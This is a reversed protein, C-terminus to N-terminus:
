GKNHKYPCYLLTSGKIAKVGEGRKCTRTGYYKCDICQKMIVLDKEKFKGSYDRKAEM